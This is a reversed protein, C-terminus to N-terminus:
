AVEGQSNGLGAVSNADLLRPTSNPIRKKAARPRTPFPAFGPFAARRNASKPTKSDPPQEDSNAGVLGPLKLSAARLPYFTWMHQQHGSRVSQDCEWQDMGAM